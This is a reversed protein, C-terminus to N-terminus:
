EGPIAKRLAKPIAKTSQHPPECTKLPWIVMPESTSNM